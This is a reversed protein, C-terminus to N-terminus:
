ALLLVFVTCVSQTTFHVSGHWFTGSRNYSFRVTINYVAWYILPTLRPCSMDTLDHCFIRVIM